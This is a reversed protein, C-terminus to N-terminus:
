GNYPFRHGSVMSVAYGDKVIFPVRKGITPDYAYIYQDAM